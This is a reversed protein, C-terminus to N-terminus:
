SYTLLIRRRRPQTALTCGTSEAKRCGASLRTEIGPGLRRPQIHISHLPLGSRWAAALAARMNNNITNISSLVQPAGQDRSSAVFAVGVAQWSLKWQIGAATYM